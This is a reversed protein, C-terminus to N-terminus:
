TEGGDLGHLRVVVACRGGRGSGEGVRGGEGRGGEGFERRRTESLLDVFRKGLLEGVEFDVHRRVAVLLVAAGTGAGGRGSDCTSVRDRRGRGRGSQSLAGVRVMYRVLRCSQQDLLRGTIGLVGVGTLGTATLAAFLRDLVREDGRLDRGVLLTVLPRSTQGVKSRSQVDAALMRAGVAAAATASAIQDLLLLDVKVDIVLVVM